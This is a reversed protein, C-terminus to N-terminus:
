YRPSGEISLIRSVKITSMNRGGSEGPPPLNAEADSSDQPTEQFRISPTPTSKKELTKEELQEQNLQPEHLTERSTNSSIETTSAM